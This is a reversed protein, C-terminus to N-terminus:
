DNKFHHLERAISLMLSENNKACIIQLGVPKAIGDDEVEGIPVSVACVEALNAPIVLADVAYMEEISKKEGLKWPLIAVTLMILCDVSKLIREFEQKVL